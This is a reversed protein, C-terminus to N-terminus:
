RRLRRWATRLLLGLAAAAGGVILWVLAIQGFASAVPVFIGNFRWVWADGNGASFPGATMASWALAAAGGGALATIATRRGFLGALGAAVALPLLRFLGPTFPYAFNGDPSAPGPRQDARAHDPRPQSRCSKFFDRIAARERDTTADMRDDAHLRGSRAFERPLPDDIAMGVEARETLSDTKDDWLQRVQYTNSVPGSAIEDLVYYDHRASLPFNGPPPMGIAVRLLLGGNLCSWDALPEDGVAGYVLHRGDEDLRWESQATPGSVSATVDTASASFLLGLTLGAITSPKM